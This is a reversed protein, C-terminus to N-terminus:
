PSVEPINNEGTRFGAGIYRVLKDHPLSQMTSLEIMINACMQVQDPIPQIKVAVVRGHYMASRVHGYAGKGVEELLQLENVDVNFDNYNFIDLSKEPFSDECTKIVEDRFLLLDKAM